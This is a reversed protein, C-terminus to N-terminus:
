TNGRWQRNFIEALPHSIQKQILKLTDTSIGYIDETKKTKLNKIIQEIEVNDTPHFFICNPNQRDQQTMRPTNTISCLSRIYFENLEDPIKKNRGAEKNIISWMARPKNKAIAIERNNQTKHEEEPARIYADKYNSIFNTINQDQITM